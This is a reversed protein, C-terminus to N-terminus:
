GSRDLRRDSDRRRCGREVEPREGDDAHSPGADAAPSVDTQETDSARAGRTDRDAARAPATRQPPQRAARTPNALQLSEQRRAHCDRDARGAGAVDALVHAEDDAAM